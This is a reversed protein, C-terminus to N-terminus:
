PKRAVGGYCMVRSKSDAPNRWSDVNVVGPDALAFGDFFLEVDDLKRMTIPACAAEYVSQLKHIDEASARDATAHSIVLYSGRPIASKLFDAVRHAEPDAVFHLVAVLIIAIPQGFDIFSLLAPNELIGEPERLDGSLAIVNPDAALRARAHNLVLPDNDVYAVRTLKHVGQAIQHTNEATPLGAGIDIFQPVAPLDTNADDRQTAVYRVARRLFSRNQYAGEFACPFVKTIEDVAERDAAFNDKGGLAFDYMRAANPKNPDIEHM